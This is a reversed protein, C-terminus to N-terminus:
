QFEVRDGDKGDEMGFLFWGRAGVVGCRECM